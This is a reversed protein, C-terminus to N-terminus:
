PHSLTDVPLGDPIGVVQRPELGIEQRLAAVIDEGSDQAQRAVTMLRQQLAGEAGPQAQPSAATAQAAPPPLGEDHRRLATWTSSYRHILALIEPDPATM